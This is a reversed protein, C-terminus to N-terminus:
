FTWILSGDIRQISYNPNYWSMFLDRNLNNTTINNYVSLPDNAWNTEANREWAYHLKAKLKGKWLTNPFGFDDFTYVAEADFRQYWTTNDPFYGGDPVLFLISDTGRSATYRFTTDLKNPIVAYNLVAYFTNVRTQENTYTQVPPFPDCDAAYDRSECTIGYLVQKGYEYLYGAAVSAASNVIYTADIGAAWKRSSELGQQNTPNISYVMQQYKLTPTLTLGPVVVIDTSVNAKWTQRNNIMLQRYTEQYQVDPAGPWQFNGVYGIYDYNDYRRNGYYVSSRVGFWSYPKWDAFLKGSNENTANVDARTWGYREFGYAAGLNWPRSPRWNLEAGANQKTYGMSITHLDDGSGFPAVPASPYFLEPTKNDFDYIRYSVKSTLTPTLRTTLVNNSLLTDIRGNLSSVPPTVLSGYPVLNFADNQTMKAYAFTGAYRSQGPLDAALTANIGDARNSPWLSVAPTRDVGTSLPPVVSFASYNDTYQSGTYGAKFVVRQGLVQGAWEGNVGYNQTTDDVPVPVQSFSPHINGFVAGVQTGTRDMHSYDANFDWTSDSTWRYHASATDRRIGLDIPQAYPAFLSAATASTGFQPGRVVPVLVNGNVVWPSLASTSYVHPTQDWIFSLYQTGAQSFDFYYSQDEYGVNYGGINVQYLGNRTGAALDFNSFAGPKMDSYKYYSALSNGKTGPYGAPATTTQYGDQPNNLFGRWGAEVSGHIWWSSGSPLAELDQSSLTTALPSTTTSVLERAMAEPVTTLTAVALLAAAALTALAHRRVEIRM